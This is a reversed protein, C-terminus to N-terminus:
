RNRLVKRTEHQIYASVSIPRTRVERWLASDNDALLNLFEILERVRDELQEVHSGVKAPAKIKKRAPPSAPKSIEQKSVSGTFRRRSSKLLDEANQM